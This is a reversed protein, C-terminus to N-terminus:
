VILKLPKEYRQILIFTNFFIGLSIIIFSIIIFCYKNCFYNNENLNKNLNKNIMLGYALSIFLSLLIIITITPILIIKNKIM